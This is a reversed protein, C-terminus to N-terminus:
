RGAVSISSFQLANQVSFSIQQGGHVLIGDTMYGETSGIPDVMLRVSSSQQLFRAPLQFTGSSMSTVTGLRVRTGGQVAYVNVDLWNYNAVRVTAPSSLSGNTTGRNDAQVLETGNAVPGRAFQTQLGTGGSSACANLALSAAAAAVLTKLAHM